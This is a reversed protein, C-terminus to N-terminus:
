LSLYKSFCLNSGLHWESPSLTVRKSIMLDTVMRQAESTNLPSPALIILLYNKDKQFKSNLLRRLFPKYNMLTSYFTVMRDERPGMRQSRPWVTPKGGVKSADETYDDKSIEM